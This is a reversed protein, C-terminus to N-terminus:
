SIINSITQIHSNLIMESFIPSGDMYPYSVTEIVWPFLADLSPLIGSAWIVPLLALLLGHATLIGDGDEGETEMFRFFGHELHAM